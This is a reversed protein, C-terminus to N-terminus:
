GTPEPELAPERRRAAFMAALGTLVMGFGTLTTPLLNRAGTAPLQPRPAAFGGAGENAAPPRVTGAGSPTGAGGPTGTGPRSSGPRGTGAGGGTGGGGGGSPPPAAVTIRITVTAESTLEPNVRNSIRYRFSDTGTAGERAQYTFRGSTTDILVQGKSADRVPTGSLLVSGASAQPGPGCDNGLLNGQVFGAEGVRASDARALPASAFEPVTISITGTAINTSDAQEVIRYGFVAVGVFCAGPHYTFDGTPTITLRDAPGSIPRPDVGVTNRTAPQGDPGIDNSLVNGHAVGQARGVTASDAVAQMPPRALAPVAPVAVVGLLGLGTAATLRGVWTLGSAGVQAEKSSIPADTGGSGAVGLCRLM